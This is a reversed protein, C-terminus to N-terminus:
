KAKKRKKKLQSEIRALTKLVDPPFNKAFLVRRPLSGNAASIVGREELLDMLQTARAYGVGLVRQLYTTSAKGIEIVAKKADAYLKDDSVREIPVEPKAVSAVLAELLTSIRKLEALIQASETKKKGKM